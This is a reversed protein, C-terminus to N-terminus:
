ITCHLYVTQLRLMIINIVVFHLQMRLEQNRSRTAWAPRLNLELEAARCTWLESESKSEWQFNGAAFLGFDAGFPLICGPPGPSAHQNNKNCNVFTPPFALAISKRRTIRKYNFLQRQNKM